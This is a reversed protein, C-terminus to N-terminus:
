PVIASVSTATVAPRDAIVHRELATNQGQRRKAEIRLTNLGSPIDLDMEFGGESSVLVREGNIMVTAHPETKGLVKVVSGSIHAGEDPSMIELAPPASVERVHWGVFGGIFLLIAFVGAVVPTRSFVFFDRKRVCPHLLMDQSSVRGELQIAERYKSVFYPVKGEMAEVLCVVHKEDYIPDALEAFREEEFLSVLLPHIGTLRSVDNRSLGRLERLAKLEAGFGTDEGAVRKQIFGM